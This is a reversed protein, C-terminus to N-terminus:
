SAKSIFAMLTNPMQVINKWVGWEVDVKFVFILVKLPM